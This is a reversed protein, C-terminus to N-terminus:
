NGHLMHVKSVYRSIRRISGAILWLPTGRTFAPPSNLATRILDVMSADFPEIHRFFATIHDSKLVDKCYSMAFDCELPIKLQKIIFEFEAVLKLDYRAVSQHFDVPWISSMHSESSKDVGHDVLLALYDAHSCFRVSRGMFVGEESQLWLRELYNSDPISHSPRRHVDINGGNKNTYNLGHIEKPPVGRKIWGEDGDTVWNHQRLVNLASIFCDQQVLVDLDGSLRVGKANFRKDWSVGKFLMIEFGQELLLDVAVMSANLCSASRVWESKSLGIVRQFHTYEPDLEPIRTHMRALIKREQWSMFDLRNLDRWEYWAQRAVPMPAIAAQQLLRIALSPYYKKKVFSLLRNSLRM